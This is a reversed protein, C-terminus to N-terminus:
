RGVADAMDRGFGEAQGPFLLMLAIVMFVPILFPFVVWRGMEKTDM